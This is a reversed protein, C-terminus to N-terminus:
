FKFRFSIQMEPPGGETSDGFDGLPITGFLSPQTQSMTTALTNWNFWKFPNFFDLRLQAKLREKIPFDKYM